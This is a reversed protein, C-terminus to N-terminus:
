FHKLVLLTYLVYAHDVRRETHARELRQVGDWDILDTFVSGRRNESRFVGRRFWLELPVNFGKKPVRALAQPYYLKESRKLVVKGERRNLKLRGPLRWCFEVLQRDLFRGRAELRNAMSMFADFGEIDVDRSVDHNQWLASIGSAFSLRRNVLAYFLPEVGFPDRVLWLRRHRGDWIAFAFIGDFRHVCDLGWEVYARLVM